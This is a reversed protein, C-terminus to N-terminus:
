REEYEKIKELLWWKQPQFTVEAKNDLEQLIGYGYKKELYISYKSLNGSLYRNCYTCQCNVNKEDWRTNRHARDKYHGAENGKRGCTVCIYKDRQRIFKSFVKDFKKELKNKEPVKREGCYICKRKNAENLKRCHFCLWRKQKKTM